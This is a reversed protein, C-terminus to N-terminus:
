LKKFSIFVIIAFFRYKIKFENKKAKKCRKKNLFKLKKFRRYNHNFSKILTRCACYKTDRRRSERRGPRGDDLL